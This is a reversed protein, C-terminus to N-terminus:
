VICGTTLGTTMGTQCGTQCCTIDHLRPKCRLFTRKPTVLWKYFLESQAIPDNDTRDTRDAINTYQPWVTPRILIFSPM